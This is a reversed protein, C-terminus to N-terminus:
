VEEARRHDLAEGEDEDEAHERRHERRDDDGPRDEADDDGLRPSPPRPQVADGLSLEDLTRAAPRREPPALCAATNSMMPLRRQNKPRDSSTVMGPRMKM